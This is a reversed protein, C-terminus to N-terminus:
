LEQDEHTDAVLRNHIVQVLISKDETLGEASVQHCHKFLPSHTNEWLFLVFM